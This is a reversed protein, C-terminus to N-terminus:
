VGVGRMRAIPRCRSCIPLGTLLRRTRDKDYPESHVLYELDEFRGRAQGCIPLSDEGLVHRVTAVRNNIGWRIDV